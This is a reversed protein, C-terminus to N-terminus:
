LALNQFNTELAGHGLVHLVNEHTSTGSRCKGVQYVERHNQSMSALIMGIKWMLFSLWLSVLAMCKTFLLPCHSGLRAQLVLRSGHIETLPSNEGWPNNAIDPSM